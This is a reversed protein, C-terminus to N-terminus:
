FLNEATSSEILNLIKTGELMFSAKEVISTKIRKWTSTNSTARTMHESGARFGTQGHVHVLM